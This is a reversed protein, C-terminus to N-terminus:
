SLIKVLERASSRWSFVKSRELGKAILENRFKRDGLIELAKHALLEANYPDALVAADGAVEKMVPLNSTIVPLGCKMAEIVPLGFGELLSPFILLHASNYVAPMDEEAIYPAIVVDGSLNLKFIKEDIMRNYDSMHRVVDIVLKHGIKHQKKLISFVDILVTINKHPELRSVDLIYPAAIGYKDKLIPKFNIKEQDSFLGYNDGVGGYITHVQAPDLNFYDVIGLSADSSVGIFSDLFYKGVYKIFSYILRNEFSLKEKYIENIPADYLFLIFKKSNLFWFGPYVNRNFIVADFEEKNKLFFVLYSILTSFVPTKYVPIEINRIKKATPHVCLGEKRILTLEIKDPFDILLQAALKQIVIATGKAQRSFDESFFAVKLKKGATNM